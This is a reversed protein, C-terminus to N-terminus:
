RFLEGCDDSPSPPVNPPPDDAKAGPPWTGDRIWGAYLIKILLPLPLNHKLRGGELLGKWVSGLGADWVKWSHLAKPESIMSELKIISSSTAKPRHDSPAKSAASLWISRRAAYYSPGAPVDLASLQHEFDPHSINTDQATYEGVRPAPM